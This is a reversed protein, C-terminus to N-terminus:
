MVTMEERSNVKSGGNLHSGAKEEAPVPSSPKSPISHASSRSPSSTDSPTKLPSMQSDTQFGSGDAGPTSVKDKYQDMISDCKQVFEEQYKKMAEEKEQELEVQVAELNKKLEEKKKELIDKLRQREQVVVQIHKTQAERKIRSLEQKDKHKKALVKMHERNQQDMKKKLEGVERDHLEELRKNHSAQSADFLQQLSSYIADHHRLYINMEAQYHDKCLAVYIQTQNQKLERIQQERDKDFQTKEEFCKAQVEGLGQGMKGAKKLLKCHTKDLTRAAKEQSSAVKEVQQAHQDIMNEQAKEHKKRLSELEKDRKGAVKLHPKLQKLASLPTPTLIEPDNLKTTQAVSVSSTGNEVGPHSSPIRTLASPAPSGSGQSAGSQTSEQKVLTREPVTQPIQKGIQSASTGTKVSSNTVSKRSLVSDVRQPGKEPVDQTGEGDDDFLVAMQQAHKEAMLQKSLYERPNSLADAFGAFADPVYDNVSLHVFLTQLPLPQNCENRLPIHRYGPRLGEVPLVRHGILKGTEEFVGIRITALNPLVVKKFVFAEEGYVPNIGNAPITKTRFKKRVTDTPLGYMDVEVYTGVKKDSLFQGSIVKMSVTGAVIGDVTSEAFPDFHRDKRRMFDPKLIYGSRGNYEFTGMNLQMPLDLTQFNLAVLQCGANWFIQPMFNSSDVRTGKPYIRSLQRKNYNVFEVPYQNLLSAAQTEVFSSIEYSRDRKESVDFAHFHVPQIYNVLLSMEMAAEAEKGATGRDKKVRQRRKKEEESIMDSPIEDEEESDDSESESNFIEEEAGGETKAGGEPPADAKEGGGESSVSLTKTITKTESDDQPKEAPHTEEAAEEAVKPKPESTKASVKTPTSKEEDPTKHFHKKKNKVLIKRKLLDPSPLHAGPELPYEDLIDTLLMEGFISRCYHAMKAQQRPTCHNEFSLIVPYDSTKFASEAIAEIVDKFPVETCMTFGHTIVPEEDQGRGDWCDLEICRCGSLLVQRYIEVSSKGTFQHGTLYTNHSSNIFYHSLPQDMDESLDLKEPPVLNNDDSMLFKLFGEQSLHGKQAMGTKTEYQDILEQARAVTYFPYLIENLRPDRQHKNLFETFQEVTLYPKKKAGMEEFVKVVETRGVLQHHFNFFNDFTFKSPDITGNKETPFGAAELAKEVRRRDDRNQAMMKLINKTPIKGDPSQIYSIRTYAKELFSLSSGNIALLNTSYQLLEEAWEKAVEKSTTVFNTMEMNYMDSGTVVSLTRDELSGDGGGSQLSERLKADKPVRAYKGTRTDRIQSIDIFDMEKSSQDKWYIIYGNADTKLTVHSGVTSSDDWKIFKHGKILIEPVRIPRLQVVHVGPKAGAM